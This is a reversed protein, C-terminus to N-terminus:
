KVLTKGEYVWSTIGGDLDYIMKFGEKKMIKSCAGSRGGKKCYVAVPKTKDVKSLMEMFNEDRYDINIAGKIHGGEYEKPTRVDIIQVNELSLLTDMEEVSILQIANIDKHNSTQTCSAITVLFFFFNCVIKFGM